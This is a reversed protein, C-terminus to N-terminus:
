NKLKRLASKRMDRMGFRRLEEQFARRRPYANGSSELLQQGSDLAEERILDESYMESDFSFNSTINKSM